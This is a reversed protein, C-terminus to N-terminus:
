IRARRAFARRVGANHSGDGIAYRGKLGRSVFRRSGDAATGTDAELLMRVQEARTRGLSAAREDLKAVLSLPLRISIMSSM